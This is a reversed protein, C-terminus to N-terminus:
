VILGLISSFAGNKRMLAIVGEPKVLLRKKQRLIRRALEFCVVLRARRAFGSLM